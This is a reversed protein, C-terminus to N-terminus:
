VCQIAEIWFIRITDVLVEARADELVETQSDRAALFYVPVFHTDHIALKERPGQEQVNHAIYVTEIEITAVQCPM